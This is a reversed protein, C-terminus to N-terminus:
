DATSDAAYDKDKLCIIFDTSDDTPYLSQQGFTSSVSVDKIMFMGTSRKKPAKDDAFVTKQCLLTDADAKGAGGRCAIFANITVADSTDIKNSYPQVTSNPTKECVIKKGSAASSCQACTDTGDACATGASDLFGLFYRGPIIYNTSVATFAKKSFMVRIIGIRGTNPAANCADGAATTKKADHWVRCDIVLNFLLKVSSGSGKLIGSNGAAVDAKEQFNSLLEDDAITNAFDSHWSIINDSGKAFGTAAPSLLSNLYAKV